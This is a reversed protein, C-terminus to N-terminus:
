VEERPSGALNRRRSIINMFLPKGWGEPFIHKHDTNINEHDYQRVKLVPASLQVSTYVCVCAHM